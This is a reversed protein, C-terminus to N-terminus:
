KRSQARTTRKLRTELGTEPKEKARPPSQVQNMVAKDSAALPGATSPVASLMGKALTSGTRPYGEAGLKGVEHLEGAPEDGAISAVQPLLM